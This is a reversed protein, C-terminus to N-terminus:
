PRHSFPDKRKFRRFVPMALILFVTLLTIGTGGKITWPDFVFRVEHPGKPVELIRFLYNGRLIETPEGDIFAKWGPYFIESLFLYAKGTAETTLGIRDPRYSTIVVEGSVTWSDSSLPPSEVGSPGSEFIITNRPDFAGDAMFDLVGKQRMVLSGPVIFTRPLYSDRLTILRKGHTIEYKVNLLDMFVHHKTMGYFLSVWGAPLKNESYRTMYDYYRSPFLATFGGVTQYGLVM